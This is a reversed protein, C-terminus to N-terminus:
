SPPRAGFGKGSAAAGKGKKKGKGKGKAGRGGSHAAGGLHAQVKTQADRIGALTPADLCDFLFGIALRELPTVEPHWHRMILVIRESDTDNRTEHMFSTDWTCMKGNQWKRVHDGVQPLRLAAAAALLSACRVWLDAAM